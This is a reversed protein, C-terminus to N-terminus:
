RTARRRWQRLLRRRKGGRHRLDALADHGSRLQRLHRIRAARSRWAPEAVRSRSGPRSDGDAHAGYRWRPDRVLEVVSLGVAAQMCAVAGQRERVFAGLARAERAAVWGPFMLAPMPFEHNVCLLQREDDLRFLGLGDCNYGFQGAQAAAAERAFLGGRAVTRADLAVSDAFLPDGWRIVIDSRYGDPVIVADASSPAVRPFTLTSASATQAYGSPALAGLAALAAGDGLLRRRNMRRALLTRLTPTHTPEM